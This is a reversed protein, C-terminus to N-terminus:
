KSFYPSWAPERVDGQSFGLRQHAYGDVSVAELVGRGNIDTAFIIMSGNPAFSPSEDLSSETLVRLNGTKLDLVAIRYVGDSGHVMALKSGDPSFSARTNYSGEFTLRQPRGLPGGRPIEVRYLQPRGGRDSTFVLGSGDPIWTPETEIAYHNTIRRLRKSTVDMVYIEPNGDRSLTLALKQGDPSWAPASNIGRFSAVREREGTAIYQVYITSGGDGEFSVYALRQGDPSWSPSMLAKSSTLIIQENFGDADAVALKFRRTGEALQDVTVYAIHTNFAGRQGTLKEYIIDSIQHGVRRLQSAGTPINYGALQKGRLVDFLQFQVQYNGDATALLKGVVLNEVGLDRWQSFKVQRADHPTDVLQEVPTPAFHGDRALDAGVIGAIDEPVDGPESWGFPVIAIPLAGEMGQTIQITLKAQASGSVVLCILFLYPTIGKLTRGRNLFLSLKGILYM